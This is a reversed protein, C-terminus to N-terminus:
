TVALVLPEPTEFSLGSQTVVGDLEVTFGDAFGTGTLTYVGDADAATFTHVVIAGALDRIIFDTTIFSNVNDGGGACGDTATLKIITSSASVQALVVDFIGFIDAAGWTGPRLIAGDDELQNADKYSLTVMTSPPRDATADLRKGVNLVVDQGKIKGDEANVAKIAGDETFEFIQMEKNHFSKLAAHSCLGLMSTFTSVKKGSATRYQKTRGEFFTDETNAVTLEEVDYLPFINKAAIAADWTAKTKAATISAFTFGPVALVGKILIGELCQEKAGTNKAAGSEGVCEQYVAM